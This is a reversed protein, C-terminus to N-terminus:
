ALVWVGNATGVNQSELTQARQNYGDKIGWYEAYDPGAVGIRMSMSAGPYSLPAASLTSGVGLIGGQTGLNRYGAWLLGRTLQRVNDVSENQACVQQSPWALAVLTLVTGIKMLKRM